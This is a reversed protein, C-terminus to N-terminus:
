ASCRYPGVFERAASVEPTRVLAGLASLGRRAVRAESRSQRTAPLREAVFRGDSLPATLNLTTSNL